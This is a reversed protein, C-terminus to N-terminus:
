RKIRVECADKYARCEYKNRYATYLLLEVSILKFPISYEAYM